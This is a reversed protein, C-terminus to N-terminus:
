LKSIRNYDDDLRVIDDEGFYSGRQIEIFVLPTDTPNAIRHNAQLPIHIQEGEKLSIDKENLTVLAEGKVITWYEERHEHRQYSLRQQPDVEIRKVKCETSDLLVDYRGWPRINSHTDSHAM